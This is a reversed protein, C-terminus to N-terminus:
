DGFSFRILDFGVICIFCFQLSPLAPAALLKEKTEDVIEREDSLPRTSDLRSKIPFFYFALCLVSSGNTHRPSFFTSSGRPFFAVAPWSCWTYRGPEVEKDLGESAPALSSIPAAWHLHIRVEVSEGSTHNPEIIRPKQRNSGAPWAALFIVASVGRKFPPILDFVLLPPVLPRQGFLAFFILFQHSGRTAKEKEIEKSEPCLDREKQCIFSMFDFSHIMHIM